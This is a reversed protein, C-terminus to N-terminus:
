HQFEYKKTAGRTIINGLNCKEAMIIDIFRECATMYIYTNKFALEDRRHM